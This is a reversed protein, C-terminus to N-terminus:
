LQCTTDRQKKREAPIMNLDKLMDKYEGAKVLDRPLFKDDLYFQYLKCVARPDPHLIPTIVGNDDWFVSNYYLSHAIDFNGFVGGAFQYMYGVFYSSAPNPHDETLPIHKAAAKNVLVEQWPGLNGTETAAIKRQFKKIAKTLRVNGAAGKIVLLGPDGLLSSLAERVFGLRDDTRWQDLYLILSEDKYLRASVDTLIHPDNFDFGPYLWQTRYSDLPTYARSPLIGGYETEMFAVVETAMKLNHRDAEKFYKFANVLGGLGWEGIEVDFMGREFREVELLDRSEITSLPQLADRRVAHFERIELGTTMPGRIFDYTVGRRVEDAMVNGDAALDNYAEELRRRQEVVLMHPVVEDCVNLLPAPDPTKCVRGIHRPKRGLIEDIRNPTTYIWDDRCEERPNLVTYHSGFLAGLQMLGPGMRSQYIYIAREAAAAALQDLRGGRPWTLDPTGQPFLRLLDDELEQCEVQARTFTRMHNPGPPPFGSEFNEFGEWAALFNKDKNMNNIAMTYWVLAEILYPDKEPTWRNKKREANITTASTGDPFLGLRYLRGLALQCEIDDHIWACERLMGEGLQYDPLGNAGSMVRVADEYSASSASSMTFAALFACIMRYPLRVNTWAGRFRNGANIILNQLRM